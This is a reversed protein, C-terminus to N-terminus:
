DNSNFMAPRGRLTLGEVQVFSRLPQSEGNNPSVTTGMAISGKLSIDISKNKKDDFYAKSICIFFGLSLKM